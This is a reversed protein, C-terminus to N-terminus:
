YFRGLIKSGIEVIGFPNVVFLMLALVLPVLLKAIWPKGTWLKSKALLYGLYYTIGFFPIFFISFELVPFLVSLETEVLLWLFIIPVLIYLVWPPGTWWKIKALLYGLFFAVGLYAVILGIIIPLNM